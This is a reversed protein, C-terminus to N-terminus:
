AALAAQTEKHLSHALPQTCPLEANCADKTNAYITNGPHLSMQTKANICEAMNKQM